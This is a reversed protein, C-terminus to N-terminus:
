RPGARGTWSRTPLSASRRGGSRRRRPCARSPRVGRPARRRAAFPSTRLVSMPDAVRARNAATVQRTGTPTRVTVETVVSHGATVGSRWTATRHLVGGLTTSSVLVAAHAKRQPLRPAARALRRRQSRWPRTRTRGRSGGKLTVRRVAPTLGLRESSRVVGSSVFRGCGRRGVVRRCPAAAWSCQVPDNRRCRTRVQADDRAALLPDRSALLMRISPSGANWAVGSARRAATVELLRLIRLCRGDADSEIGM